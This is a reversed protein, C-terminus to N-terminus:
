LIKQSLVATSQRIVLRPIYMLRQKPKNRDTIEELLVAAADEGMRYVPQAVTSLPVDMYQAFFIDDFGMLSIDQPIKLGKDKLAKAAGVAMMDNHCFIATPKQKLLCIAGKYGGHYRFDGEYILAPKPELGAETLTKTYGKFRDKNTQIGQPGTICGIRRHGLDLLHQVALCSGAMNDVAITSFDGSDNFSDILIIPIGLVRLSSLCEENKPGFSEASIVLIIGDVSRDALINVCQRELLYEDNSNCLIVTYNDRRSRDEIGRALESFFINSIDPIILGITRTQRTLLSIALQNPRYNLTEVADFVTQKTKAPFRDGKKNLILSVTTISLGTEKAIDKITTRM